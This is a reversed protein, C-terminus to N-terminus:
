PLRVIGVYGSTYASGNQQALVHSGQQQLRIKAGPVRVARAKAARLDQVYGVGGYSWTARGAHLTPAVQPDIRKALVRRHKDGCRQASLTSVGYLGWPKAYANLGKTALPKCPSVALGASNMDQVGAQAVVREDHRSAYFRDSTRFGVVDVLLWQTGVTRIRFSQVNSTVGPSLTFPTWASFPLASQFLEVGSVPDGTPSPCRGVMGGPGGAEIGCGPGPPAVEVQKRTSLDLDFWRTGPVFTRAETSPSGPTQYLLHRGDGGLLESGVPIPLAVIPVSSRAFPRAGAASGPVLGAAAVVLALLSLRRIIKM